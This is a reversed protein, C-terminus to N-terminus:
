FADLKKLATKDECDILNSIYIYDVIIDFKINQM